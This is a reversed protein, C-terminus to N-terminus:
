KINSQTEPSINTKPSNPKVISMAKSFTKSPITSNEPSINKKTEPSINTTPAASTKATNIAKTMTSPSIGSINASSPMEASPQFATDAATKINSTPINLKKFDALESIFTSFKKM